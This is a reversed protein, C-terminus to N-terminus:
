PSYSWSADSNLKFWYGKGPELEFSNFWLSFYKTAVQYSGDDNRKSVEIVQSPLSNLSINKTSSIGVLNMGQVLNTTQSQTFRKGQITQTIEANSEVFYGKNNFIQSTTSITNEYKKVSIINSNTFIDGVLNSNPIIPLSILNQGKKLKLDFSSEGSLWKLSKKFMEKSDTTWKDADAIGFFITDANVNTSPYGAKTLTTGAEALGIVVDGDGLKTAITHIGDYKNYRALYYVDADKTNYIQVDDSALWSTISHTMDNILIHFPVNQRSKSIALTWGWEDLNNGDLIIAPQNNVPILNWNPFDEDNLVLIKYQSLNTYTLNADYIVKYSFGAEQIASIVAPKLRYDYHVIYAVDEALVLNSLLVVVFIFVSIKKIM